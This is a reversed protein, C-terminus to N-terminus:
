SEGETICKDRLNAIIICSFTFLCVNNAKQHFTDHVNLAKTILLKSIDSIYFVHRRVVVLRLWRHM